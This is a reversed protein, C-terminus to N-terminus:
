VGATAHRGHRVQGAVLRTVAHLRMGGCPVHRVQWAVLQSSGVSYVKGKEMMAALESSLKSVLLPRDLTTKIYTVAQLPM